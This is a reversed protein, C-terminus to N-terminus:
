WNEAISQQKHRMDIVFDFRGKPHEGVPDCDFVFHGGVYISGPLLTATNFIIQHMVENWNTLLRQPHKEDWYIRKNRAKFVVHRLSHYQETELSRLFLKLLEV